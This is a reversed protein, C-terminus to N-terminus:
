ILGYQVPNTPLVTETGLTGDANRHQVWYYYNTAGARKVETIGATPVPLTARVTANAFTATTGEYFLTVAGDSVENNTWAFSFTGYTVGKIVSTGEDTATFNSPSAVSSTATTTIQANGGAGTAYAGYSGNRYYRLRWDYTTSAALGTLTYEVTGAALPGIVTWTSGSALKYELYITAVEDGGAHSWSLPASTATETGVTLSSPTGVPGALTLQAGETTGISFCTTPTGQITFADRQYDWWLIQDGWAGTLAVGDMDEQRRLLWGIRTRPSDHVAWAYTLDHYTNLRRTLRNTALLRVRDGNDSLAPGQESMWVALPGNSVMGTVSLPGHASGIQRTYFQESYDGDLAFIETPKGIITVQGATACATVPLGRTGCVFYGATTPEADAVWTAPDAYKCYRVIEPRDPTTADFYGWGLITAGRHKAIGKFRLVASGGGVNASIQSVTPGTPDFTHLGKRSAVAERADPCFYFKSFMEFGTMQPPKAETYSTIADMTRLISDDEGLQHLYIKNGSTDFSFAVGASAASATGQVAFPFIGCVADSEVPSGGGDDCTDAVRWDPVQAVVGNGTLLANEVRASEQAVLPASANDEGGQFLPLPMSTWSNPM